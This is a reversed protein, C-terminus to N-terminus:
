RGKSAFIYIAECAKALIDEEPSDLLLVTTAPNKIKVSWVSDFQTVPSFSMIIILVFAFVCLICFYLLKTASKCFLTFNMPM